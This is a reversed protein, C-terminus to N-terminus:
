PLVENRARRQSVLLLTLGASLPLWYWETHKLLANDTIDIKELKEIDGIIRQVETTNAAAYYRGQTREAIRRLLHEDLPMETYAPKENPGRPFPVTQHSGIGVTYIRIGEEAALAAAADPHIEGATNSGDTLLILVRAKADRDQLRKVALAMATGLATKEGAMGHRVEQLLSRVINMDSTLPSLTYADDAFVILGIRDGHRESLFQNVIKKLMDLRSLTAGNTEAAGPM